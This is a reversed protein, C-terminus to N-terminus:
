AKAMSVYLSWGAPVLRFREGSEILTSWLYVSLSRDGILSYATITSGQDLRRDRRTILQTTKAVSSIACVGDPFARDDFDLGCVRRLVSSAAPGALWLQAKGDTIDTVTVGTAAAAARELADLLKHGTEISAIVTVLDNRICAIEAAETQAGHGVKLGRTGFVEQVIQVAAEGEIQYRSLPSIDVLVAAHQAAAEEEETSQFSAVTRFNGVDITPGLHRTTPYLPALKCPTDM